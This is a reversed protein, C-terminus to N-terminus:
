GTTIVVEPVLLCSTSPLPLLTSATLTQWRRGSHPAYFIYNTPQRTKVDAFICVRYLTSLTSVLGHFLHTCLALRIFSETYPCSPNYNTRSTSIKRRKKEKKRRSSRKSPPVVSICPGRIHYEHCHKRSICLLNVFLQFAQTQHFKYIPRLISTSDSRDSSMPLRGGKTCCLTLGIESLRISSM